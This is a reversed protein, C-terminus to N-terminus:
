VGLSGIKSSDALLRKGFQSKSRVAESRSNPWGYANIPMGPVPLGEGRNVRAHSFRYHNYITGLVLDSFLCM